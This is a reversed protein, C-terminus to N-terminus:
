PPARAVDDAVRRADEPPREGRDSDARAFVSRALSTQKDLVPRYAEAGPPGIPAAAPPRHGIPAMVVLSAAARRVDQARDRGNFCAVRFDVRDGAELGGPVDGTAAAHVFVDPSGDDPRIFGYDGQFWTVAGGLRVEGEARLGSSRRSSASSASSRRRVPATSAASSASSASSRRRRPLAEVDVARPRGDRADVRFALADGARADRPLASEHVFVDALQPGHRRIFGYAARPARDLVGTAKGDARPAEPAGPAGVDRAELRGVRGDWAVVFEVADGAELAGHRRVNARHVFLDDGGGDRRVFGYQDGFWDVVGTEVRAAAAPAGASLRRLGAAAAAVRPDGRILDALDRNPCSLKHDLPRNTAPSTDRAALWAEAARREYSYGDALVVPDRMVENSIRCVYQEPVRAAAGPSAPEDSARSVVAPSTPSLGEEPPPADIPAAPPATEPDVAAPPATEPDPAAPPATEPGPAKRADPRKKRFFM